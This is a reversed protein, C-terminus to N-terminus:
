SLFFRLMRERYDPATDYVAHGYGEYLYSGCDPRGAFVEAIEKTAEVGLVADATDGIVLVPCRIEKLRDLVDFGKAGSALIIFRALDEETVARGAAALANHYLRFLGPPYLKEGFDLYLAEGDNEKALRLWNALVSRSHDATRAATSGLILKAVLDPRTIAIIMAMMGGQSAGFLCVDKLGLADMAAATDQAMEQVTYVPPLDLRRDFLYITFHEALLAYSREISHASRLVSGVSLGPLIVMTKDGKGFRCCDMAFSATKVTEITFM